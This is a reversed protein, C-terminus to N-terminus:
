PRSLRMVHEAADKSRDPLRRARLGASSGSSRPGGTSIDSYPYWSKETKDIKTLPVRGWFLFPLLASSPSRTVDGAELQEFAHLPKRSVPVSTSPPTTLSHTLYFVLCTGFNLLVYILAASSPTTASTGLLTGAMWLTLKSNTEGKPSAGSPAQSNPVILMYGKLTRLPVLLFCGHWACPFPPLLDDKSQGDFRPVPNEFLKPKAEM